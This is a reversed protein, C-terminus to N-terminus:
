HGLVVASLRKKVASIQKKIRAAENELAAVELLAKQVKTGELWSKVTDIANQDPNLVDKGSGDLIGQRHKCFQGKEGAACTCTAIIEGAIRRFKVSYPEPASGQILFVFLDDM